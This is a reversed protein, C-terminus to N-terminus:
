RATPAGSSLDLLFLSGGEVFITQCRLEVPRLQGHALLELSANDDECSSFPSWGPILASVPRGALQEPAQGVSRALSDSCAVVTGKQDVILTAEFDQM